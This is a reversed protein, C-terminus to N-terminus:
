ATGSARKREQENKWDRADQSLRAHETAAQDVEATLRALWLRVAELRRAFEEDLGETSVESIEVLRYVERHLADAARGAPKRMVYRQSASHSLRAYADQQEDPADEGPTSPLASEGRAWRWARSLTVAVRDTLSIYPDRGEDAPLLLSLPSVNLAAALAVLDDADVRRTGAEIRSVGLPPITRGLEAVRDSLEKKTLGRSERIREVNARVQDGTPGLPNKKEEAM